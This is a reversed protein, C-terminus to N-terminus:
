VTVGDRAAVFADASSRDFWAFGGPEGDWARASWGGARKCDDLMASFEDKPMKEPPVACWYGRGKQTKRAIISWKPAGQNAVPAPATKPEPAPTPETVTAVVVRGSEVGADLADAPKTKRAKSAKAKPEAVDQPAPESTEAKVVKPTKAVRDAIPRGVSAAFQKRTTEYQERVNADTNIPMLVGIGNQGCVRIPRLKGNQSPDIFLTVSECKLGSPTAGIANAIKLLLAANLTIGVCEDIDPIVDSCPPFTGEAYDSEVLGAKTMRSVKGSLTMDRVKDSGKPILEAPIISQAPTYGSVDGQQKATVVSLCHGDTAVLYAAEPDHSAPVYQVGNIAYRSTERAACAAPNSGDPVTVRVNM